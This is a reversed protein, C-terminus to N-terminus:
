SPCSTLRPNSVRAARLCPNFVRAGLPLFGPEPNGTDELPSPSCACAPHRLAASVCRASPPIGSALTWRPPVPPGSGAGRSACDGDSVRNPSGTRPCPTHAAPQFGASREPVPRFGAIRPAPVWARPQRSGLGSSSRGAGCGGHRVSRADQGGRARHKRGEASCAEPRRRHQLSARPDRPLRDPMAAPLWWPSWAV